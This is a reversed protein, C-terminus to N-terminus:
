LISIEKLCKVTVFNMYCLLYWVRPVRIKFLIPYVWFHYNHKEIFIKFVTYYIMDENSVINWYLMFYIIYSSAKPAPRNGASWNCRILILYINKTQQFFQLKEGYNNAVSVYTTWWLIDIFYILISTYIRYLCCRCM